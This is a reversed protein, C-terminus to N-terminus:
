DHLEAKEASSKVVRYRFSRKQLWLVGLTDMLGVWLRNNISYKTKGRMRPRHNVPVEALTFGQMAVLTPLFRHMGRFNPLQEVCERRFVRTSCGVDSVTNGTVRNRFDNAIRSAMKRVLTDKRRARYGNVMDAKGAQIEALLAPIDAPDNQGDGDVTAIFTGRCEKFGAWFAASQGANQEFSIFRHRSDQRALREIIDLSGDTSGDDVWICEWTWAQRDLVFTLQEALLEINEAEDKIPIVVSLTLQNKETM